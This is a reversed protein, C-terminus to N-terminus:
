EQLLRLVEFAEAYDYGATSGRHQALTRLSEPSRPHPFSQIETEYKEMAEIKSEIHESINVFRKPSFQGNMEGFAWETSSPVEFAYIENVTEIDSASPRTATLVAEHIRRHDVNLDTSSHTYVVDPESREIYDEVIKILDLRDMGDLRNDPLGKLYHSDIELFEAVSKSRQHLEEILSEDADEPNDYRSTIGEGLIAIDVSHGDEVLRSITGGCGLVEDDPHAAVVLVNQKYQGSM